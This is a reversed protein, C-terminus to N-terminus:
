NRSGPHRYMYFRHRLRRNHIPLGWWGSTIWHRSYKVGRASVSIRKRIANANKSPKGKFSLDQFEKFLLQLFLIQTILVKFGVESRFFGVFGFM